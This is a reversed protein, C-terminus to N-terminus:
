RASEQSREPSGNELWPALVRRIREAAQPRGYHARVFERAREGIEAVALPDGWRDLARAFAEPGEAELHTEGAVSGSGEAAVHTCLVALGRAQAELLRYRIGGAWRLPILVGDCCRFEAELDDVYGVWEIGERTTEGLPGLGAGVVRLRPRLPHRRWTPWIERLFWALGDRNFDARWHGYCLFVPREPSPLRGEPREPVDVTVPWVGVAPRPPPTSDLLQRARQADTETLTLLLDAHLFASREARQLRQLVDASCIEARAVSEVDAAILVRRSRPSQALAKGTSWYAGVFLADPVRRAWNRVRGCVGPTSVYIQERPVGDRRATWESLLRRRARALLGSKAHYPDLDLDFGEERLRAEAEESGITRRSIWHVTGLGALSRATDLLFRRSGQNAPWPLEPTIYVIAPRM